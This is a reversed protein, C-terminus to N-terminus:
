ILEFYQWIYKGWDFKPFSFLSRSDFGIGYGSIIVVGFLCEILAFDSNLHRPSTDLDYVM